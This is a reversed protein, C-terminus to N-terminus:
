KVTNIEVAGFKGETDYKKQAEAASLVSIECKM